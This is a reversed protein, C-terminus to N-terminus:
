HRGRRLEALLLPLFRLDDVLYRRWLRGPEQALRFLWEGGVRQLWRPARRVMGAYVDFSGGVGMVFAAGITNKWRGIFQEKRPSPLAVLLIQPGAEHIEEAIAEDDDAPWYGDHTGAIQLGPHERGLRDVLRELVSARGGLFYVGYGAREARAILAAMLDVGTVREPLPRGLLRSAWVIPLGDATVIDAANIIAQLEPDRSAKTVKDVNLAVHQHVGGAHIFADIRDVTEAMSLADVEIGFLRVSRRQPPTM